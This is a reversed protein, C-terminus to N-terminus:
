RIYQGPLAEGAHTEFFFVQLFRLVWQVAKAVLPDFGQALNGDIHSETLIGSHSRFDYDEINNVEHVRIIGDETTVGDVLECRDDV